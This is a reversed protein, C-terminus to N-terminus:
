RRPRSPQTPVVSLSAATRLITADLTTWADLRLDCRARTVDPVYRHRPGPPAPAGDIRVGRAGPILAAVRAALAGITIAEDSGVNYIRSATDACLLRLLWSAADGVDLYSRVPTGDGAVRIVRGAVADAIFNGIAFHGDTPLHPGAFSFCRAVRTPPGGDGSHITCLQEALRKAQAYNSRPDDTPPAGGYTEPIRDLM